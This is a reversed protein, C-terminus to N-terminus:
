YVITARLGLVIANQLRNGHEDAVGRAGPDIIYQLDPQLTVGSMVVYQYTAEILGTGDNVLRGNGALRERRTADASLHAYAGALAITDQGRGPFLGQYAIGADVFADVLNRGQPAGMIRVFVSAGNASGAEKYISQDVILYAGDDGRVYRDIGPPAGYDPFRDFHHLYGVKVNGPLGGQGGHDTLYSLETLFLPPDRLRFAVGGRDRASLPVNALRPDGTGAPDGDYIVGSITLSKTPRYHLEAGPAAFPYSGGGSPLDNAFIAPFGFSSNVFVSATESVIYEADIALQGFRFALKGDFLSQQFWAQYIKTDPYAEINSVTFLDGVNHSSLGRGHIQYANTHLSAGTLGAFSDLDVNLEGELRGEYITGRRLGGTTDALTEGVYTFGYQIGKSQLFARIGGPDGAAGLAGQISTTAVESPAASTLPAGNPVFPQVVKYPFLSAADPLASQGHVASPAVVALM